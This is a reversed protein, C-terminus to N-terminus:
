RVSTKRRRRVIGALAPVGLLALSTPEPVAALFAAGYANGFQGFHEIVEGLGASDLGTTSRDAGTIWDIARGLTGNQQNFAVDILVYDDFNVNGSYTAFFGAMLGLAMLTLCQATLSFCSLWLPAYAPM